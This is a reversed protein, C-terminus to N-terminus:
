VGVIAAAFSAVTSDTAAPQNCPITTISNSDAVVEAISGAIPM